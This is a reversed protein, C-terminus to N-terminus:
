RKLRLYKGFESVDQGADELIRILHRSIMQKSSIRIGGYYYKRFLKQFKCLRHIFIKYNPNILYYDENCKKVYKVFFPYEENYYTRYALYVVTRPITKLDIDNQTRQIVLKEVSSSLKSFDTVTQDYVFVNKVSKPIMELNLNITKEFEIEKLRSNESNESNKFEFNILDIWKFYIKEINKLEFSPIQFRTNMYNYSISLIKITDFSPFITIPMRLNFSLNYLDESNLDDMHSYIYEIPINLPNSCNTIYKSIKIKDYNQEFHSVICNNLIETPEIYKFFTLNEPFPMDPQILVSDLYLSIISNPLVSCDIESLTHLYLGITKNWLQSLNNDINVNKLKLIYVKPLNRIIESNMNNNTIDLKNLTLHHYSLDFNIKNNFSKFIETTSTIGYLSTLDCNSIKMIKARPVFQLHILDSINTLSIKRFKKWRPFITLMQKNVNELLLNKIKFFNTIKTINTFILSLETISNSRPLYLIDKPFTVNFLHLETVCSLINIESFTYHCNYFRIIKTFVNELPYNTKNEATFIPSRRETKEIPSFHKSHFPFLSIM